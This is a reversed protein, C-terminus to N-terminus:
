YLTYYINPILSNCSYPKGFYCMNQFHLLHGSFWGESYDPDSKWLDSKFSAMNSKVLLLGGVIKGGFKECFSTFEGCGKYVTNVGNM